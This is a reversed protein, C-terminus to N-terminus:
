NGVGQPVKYSNDRWLLWRTAGNYIYRKSMVEPTRSVAAAINWVLFRIFIGLFILFRILNTKRPTDFKQHFLVMSKKQEIFMELTHQRTSVRGIHIIEAQPYFYVKWGTAKARYCFDREETYIFYREDLLGIDDMVARKFMFFAGSVVDVEAPETFRTNTLYLRGFLRSGPFLRTLFLSDFLYDWVTPFTRCSNWPRGDTNLLRCGAIGAEPTRTLFEMTDKVAGSQIITDPNLLLINGGRAERLCQNCAAAFGMNRSNTLIKLDPFVKSVLRISDDTSANDIIIVEIPVEGANKILSQICATLHHDSNYNVIIVSLIDQEAMNGRDGTNPM